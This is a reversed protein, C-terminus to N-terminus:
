YFNQSRAQNSHKVQTTKGCGTNGRIIIVSNETIAEMLDRKMKAVPLLDREKMSNQLHIDSQLRDRM